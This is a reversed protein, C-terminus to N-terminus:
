FRLYMKLDGYAVFLLQRLLQSAEPPIPARKALLAATAALRIKRALAVNSMAKILYYSIDIQWWQLGHRASTPFAHHNNHLGEGIGLVGLVLNNRSEDGTRFPRSGWVHCISNISSIIHHV